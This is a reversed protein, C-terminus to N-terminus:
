RNAVARFETKRKLVNKVVEAFTLDFSRQWFEAEFEIGLEKEIRFIAQEFGLDDVTQFRPGYAIVQFRDAPLFFERRWGVAHHFHRGMLLAMQREDPNM